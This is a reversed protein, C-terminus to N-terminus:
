HRKAAPRKAAKAESKAEAKAEAAKKKEKAEIRKLAAEAEKDAMKQRQAECGMPECEGPCACKPKKTKTCICNGDPARYCGCSNVEEAAGVRPMGAVGWMLVTVLFMRM